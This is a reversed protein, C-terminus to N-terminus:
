STSNSDNHHHKSPMIFSLGDDKWRMHENFYEDNRIKNILDFNAGSDISQILHIHKIIGNSNSEKYPSLIKFWIQHKNEFLYVWFALCRHSGELFTHTNAQFTHVCVPCYFFGKNSKYKDYNYSIKKRPHSKHGCNLCHICDPFRLKILLHDDELTYKLYDKYPKGM